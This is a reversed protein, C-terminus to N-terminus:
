GSRSWWGSWCAKNWTAPNRELFPWLSQIVEKVAQLFEPQHPDRQAVHNLFDASSRHNM